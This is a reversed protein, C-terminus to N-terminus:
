VADFDKGEDPTWAGFFKPIGLRALCPSLLHTDEPATFFGCSPGEAWDPVVEAVRRAIAAGSDLFSLGPAANELASRILPFHTCGLIITDLDPIATLPALEAAVAQPDLAAGRLAAEAMLVLRASGHRHLTVGAGHRAMLDDIYPRNVTAPTALLGIMRSRSGECAPKVAPVTGIVPISLRARLAPLAITSATNCAVVLGCPDLDACTEVLLSEIRALLVDDPKTGYPLWASDALYAIAGHPKQVRLAEVVSLGGLGSDFVLLPRPLKM